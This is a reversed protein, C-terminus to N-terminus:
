ESDLQNLEFEGNIVTENYYQNLNGNSVDNM